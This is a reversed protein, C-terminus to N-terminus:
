SYNLSSNPHFNYWIKKNRKPVVLLELFLAENNKKRFGKLLCAGLFVRGSDNECRMLTLSNKSLVACEKVLSKLATLSIINDHQSINLHPRVWKKKQMKPGLPPPSSFLLMLDVVIHKAIKRLSSQGGALHVLLREWLFFCNILMAYCVSQLVLHQPRWLPMFVTDINWCKVMINCNHGRPWATELLSFHM